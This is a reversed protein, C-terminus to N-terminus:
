IKKRFFCMLKRINLDMATLFIYLTQGQDVETAAFRTSSIEIRRRNSHFKRAPFSISHTLHIDKYGRIVLFIKYQTGHESATAFNQFCCSFLLFIRM